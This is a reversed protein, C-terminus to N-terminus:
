RQEDPDGMGVSASNRLLLGVLEAQSHTETKALARKLLTRATALSIQASAAHEGLPRGACLAGVVLSEGPTLGFLEAARYVQAIVRDEPSSVVILSVPSTGVGDKSWMMASISVALSLGRETRRVCAMQRAKQRPNDISDAVGRIAIKFPRELAADRCAIRGGAASFVTGALLLREAARTMHHIKGDRDTVFAAIGLQAITRELNAVRDSEARMRAALREANCIHTGLLKLRRATEDDYFGVARSRRLVLGRDEHPGRDLPMFMLHDADLPRFFECYLPSRLYSDYDTYLCDTFVEGVAVENQEFFSPPQLRSYYTEYARQREPLSVDIETIRVSRSRHDRTLVLSFTSGFERTLCPLLADWRRERLLLDYILRTTAAHRHYEDQPESSSEMVAQSESPGEIRKARTEGLSTCQFPDFFVNM